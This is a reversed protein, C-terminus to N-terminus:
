IQEQHHNTTPKYKLAVALYYTLLQTIDHPLKNCDDLKPNYHQLSLSTTIVKERDIHNLMAILPIPVKVVCNELAVLLESGDSSVDMLKKTVDYEDTSIKNSLPPLTCICELTEIDWFTIVDKNAYLTIIAPSHPCVIINKLLEKSPLSPITPSPMNCYKIDILTDFIYITSEKNALIVHSGNFNYQCFIIKDIHTKLITHSLISIEPNYKQFVLNRHESYCFLNNDIPHFSPVPCTTPSFHRKHSMTYNDYIFFHTLRSCNGSRKSYDSGRILYNKCPAFSAFIKEATADHITHCVSPTIQNETLYMQTRVNDLLAFQLKNPHITLTPVINGSRQTLQGQHITQKHEGTIANFIVCERDNNIIIENNNLFGLQQVNKCPITALILQKKQQNKKDMAHCTTAICLYTATFTTLFYKM